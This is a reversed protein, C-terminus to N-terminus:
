PPDSVLEFDFSIIGVKSRIKIPIKREDATLWVKIQPHDSKKVVKDLKDLTEMNPTIEIADYM